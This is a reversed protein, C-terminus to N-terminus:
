LTGGEHLQRKAIIYVAHAVEPTEYRGLNHQKGALMIQAKFKKGSKSVGLLGTKNTHRAKRENQANIAQPAERLNIFRNDSPVGNRHDIGTKPWESTVYLWALRHAKYEKNDIGINIYGHKDTSGAAAGIPGKNSLLVVWVFIGTAPDYRLVDRLRDATLNM